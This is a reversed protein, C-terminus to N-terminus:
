NNEQFFARVANLLQSMVLLERSSPTSFHGGRRGGMRRPPCKEKYKLILDYSRAFGFSVQRNLMQRNPM